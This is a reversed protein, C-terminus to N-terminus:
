PSRTGPPWAARRCFLLSFYSRYRRLENVHTLNPVDLNTWHSQHGGFHGNDDPEGKLAVNRCARRATPDDGSQRLLKHGFIGLIGLVTEPVARGLLGAFPEATRRVPEGRLLRRFAEVAVAGIAVRRAPDDARQAGHQAAQEFRQRQDQKDRADNRNQGAVADAARDDDQDQRDRDAEIGHLLSM